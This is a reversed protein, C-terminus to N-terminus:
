SGSPPRTVMSPTSRFAASGAATRARIAITGCSVTIKAAEARGLLEHGGREVLVRVLRAHHRPVAYFSRMQRLEAIRQPTYLTNVLHWTALDFYIASPVERATEGPAAPRLGRYGFEPLISTLAIRRDFDTGAVHVGHSALIDGRRDEAPARGAGVRVVAFDSTGGGIDAVVAPAPPLARLVIEQTREFELRGPGREGLRGAEKGLEYYAHM